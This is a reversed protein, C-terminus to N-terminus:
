ATPAADEVPPNNTVTRGSRVVWRGSERREMAQGCRRCISVFTGAKNEFAHSGSRKHWGLVCLLSM